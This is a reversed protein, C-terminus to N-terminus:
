GRGRLKDVRTSLRAAADDLAVKARWARTSKIAAIERDREALVARAEDLVARTQALENAVRETELGMRMIEARLPVANEDLLGESREWLLSHPLPLPESSCIALFYLDPPSAEEVEFRGSSLGKVGIEVLHGERADLPHLYSVGHIGQGLFAVHEFHPTLLDRFEEFYLERVHFANRYGREDSYTRRDPSSIVFLGDDKLLRRVERVFARQSADDVHEITEFSTVLDFRKEGEIPLAAASGQVFRLNDRVHTRQAHELAEPDIDVGVVSSASEALFAAGYGEGCAVDLVTRGTAFRRAYAYRHWHEYAISSYSGPSDPVFREGTFKMPM